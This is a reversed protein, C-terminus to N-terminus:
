RTLLCDQTDIICIMALYHKSKVTVFNVYGNLCKKTLAINVISYKNCYCTTILQIYM